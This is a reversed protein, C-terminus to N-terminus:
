YIIHIKANALTIRFLLVGGYGVIYLIICLVMHTHVCVYIAVIERDHEDFAASRWAKFM